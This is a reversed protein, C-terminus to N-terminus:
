YHFVFETFLVLETIFCLSLSYCLNLLSVNNFYQINSSHYGTHFPNFTIYGLLAMDKNRPKVSSELVV